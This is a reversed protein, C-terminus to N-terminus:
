LRILILILIYKESVTKFRNTEIRSETLEKTLEQIRQHLTLMTAHDFTSSVTAKELEEPQNVSEETQNVLSVSLLEPQEHRVEPVALQSTTTHDSFNDACLPQQKTNQGNEAEEMQEPELITEGESKQLKGNIVKSIQQKLSRLSKKKSGIKQEVILDHERESKM